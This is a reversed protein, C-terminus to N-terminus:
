PLTLGHFSLRIVPTCYVVETLVLVASTAAAVIVLGSVAQGIGLVAGPSCFLLPARYSSARHKGRQCSRLPSVQRPVIFRDPTTACLASTNPRLTIRPHRLRPLRGMRSWRFGLPAASAVALASSAASHFLVPKYPFHIVTTSKAHACLHFLGAQQGPRPRFFYPSFGEYIPAASALKAHKHHVSLSQLVCPHKIALLNGAALWFHRMLPYSFHGCVVGHRNM